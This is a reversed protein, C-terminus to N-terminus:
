SRDGWAISSEARRGEENLSTAFNERQARQAGTAEAFANARSNKLSVQSGTNGREDSSPGISQVDTDGPLPAGAGSAGPRTPAPTKKLMDAFTPRGRNGGGGGGM